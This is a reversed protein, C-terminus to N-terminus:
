DSRRVTWARVKYPVSMTKFSLCKERVKQMIIRWLDEGAQARVDNVSNWINVYRESTMMEAYDCEMFVADCFSGASMLIRSWDKVNQLGSSVRRLNPLMGGIIEDIERNM